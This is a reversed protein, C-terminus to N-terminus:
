PTTTTAELQLTNTRQIQNQIEQWTRGITGGINQFGRGLDGLVIGLGRGLTGFLSTDDKAGGGAALPMPASSTAAAEPAAQPLTVNLYVLWLFVVVVMLVASTGYLYLRKTHDNSRQLRKIFDRTKVLTEKM